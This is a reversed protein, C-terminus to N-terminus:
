VEMNKDHFFYINEKKLDLYYKYGNILLENICEFEVLNNDDVLIYSYNTKKDLDIIKQVEKLDQLDVIMITKNKLKEKLNNIKEKNM